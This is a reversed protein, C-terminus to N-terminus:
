REYKKTQTHSNHAEIELEDNKGKYLDILNDKTEVARELSELKAKTENLDEELTQIRDIASALEVSKVETNGEKNAADEVKKSETSASIDVQKSKEADEYKSLMDDLSTTQSQSDPEGEGQDYNALINENFSLDKVGDKRAKKAKDEDEDDVSRLRHKKMMHNKIGNATKCENNCEECSYVETGDEKIITVLKQEEAKKKFVKKSKDEKNIIENIIEEEQTPVLGGSIDMSYAMSYDDDECALTVDTFRTEIQRRPSTRGQRSNDATKGVSPQPARVKM